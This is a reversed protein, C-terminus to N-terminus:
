KRCLYGLCKIATICAEAQDIERLMKGLLSVFRGCVDLNFSSFGTLISQICNLKRPLMRDAQDAFLGVFDIILFQVFM